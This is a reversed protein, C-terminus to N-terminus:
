AETQALQVVWWKKQLGHSDLLHVASLEDVDDRHAAWEQTWGDDNRQEAFM